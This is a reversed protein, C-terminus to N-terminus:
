ASRKSRLYRLLARRDGSERAKEALDRAPDDEGGAMASMSSSRPASRFLFPKRRKLDAVAAAPDADEGMAREALLRATELDLVQANLLEADLARQRESETLGTRARVLEAELDRLKTQLEEVKQEAAAARRRWAFDEGVNPSASPPQQSQGQGGTGEGEGAEGPM